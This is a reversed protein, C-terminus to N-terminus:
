CLHKAEREGSHLPEGINYQGRGEKWRVLQKKGYIRTNYAFVCGERHITLAATRNQTKTQGNEASKSLQPSTAWAWIRWASIMTPPFMPRTQPWRLTVTLMQGICTAVGREKDYLKAVQQGDVYVVTKYAPKYTQGDYELTKSDLYITHGRGIITMTYGIAVLLVVALIQFLLRRKAKM